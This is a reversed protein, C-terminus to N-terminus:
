FKWAADIDMIKRFKLMMKLFHQLFPKLRNGCITSKKGVSSIVSIIKVKKNRSWPIIKFLFLKWEKKGGDKESEVLNQAIDVCVRLHSKLLFWGKGFFINEDWKKKCVYKM